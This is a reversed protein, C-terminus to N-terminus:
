WKGCTQKNQDGCRLANAATAPSEYSVAYVNYFIIYGITIPFLRRLRLIGLSIEIFLLLNNIVIFYLCQNYISNINLPIIAICLIV